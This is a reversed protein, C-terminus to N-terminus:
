RDHTGKRKEGEGAAAAEGAESKDKTTTLNQRVGILWSRAPQM